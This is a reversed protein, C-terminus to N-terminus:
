NKNINISKSKEADNLKIFSDFAFWVVTYWPIDEFKFGQKILQALAFLGLGLPVIVRLDAAGNTMKYVDANFDSMINLLDKAIASQNNTLYPQSISQNRYNQDTQQTQGNDTIVTVAEQYSESLNIGEKIATQVLPQKIVEAVPIIMQSFIIASLGEAIEPLNVKEWDFKSEM